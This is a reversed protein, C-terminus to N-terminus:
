GLLNSVTELEVQDFSVKFLESFWKVVRESVEQVEVDRNLIEKMSTMVEPQFGCPRILKFYGLDTSVNLAFGHYTVWHEIAIGISALKRGGCWVGPYGERWFADMEFDGVARILVEELDLVLSRVRLGAEELGVIPYGVLQGPGHYTVDGGREIHYVPLDCSLVNQRLGRKGVTLVHPHEVLILTDHIKGELRRKLLKKQLELTEGYEKLGLDLLLAKRVM